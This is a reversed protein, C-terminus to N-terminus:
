IINLFYNTLSKFDNFSKVNKITDFGYAAHMFDIGAKKSADQDWITDGIYVSKKFNNKIVINKIMVDKTNHSMGACDFDLIYKKLKTIKFFLQMYWEPCNSVLCIKYKESLKKIGQYVDPFLEGGKEQIAIREQEELISSLEPYKKCLGPLRMEVCEDFPKGAVDEINKKTIIKNIGLIKLGQNWGFATTPSMNWLTGDIDFILSDYNM